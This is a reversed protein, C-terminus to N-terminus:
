TRLLVQEDPCADPIGVSVAAAKGRNLLGEGRAYVVMNYFQQKDCRALRGHMVYSTFLEYLIRCAMDHPDM